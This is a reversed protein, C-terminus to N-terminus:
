PQIRVKSMMARTDPYKKAIAGIDVHLTSEPAPSSSAILTPSSRGPPGRVQAPFQLRPSRINKEDLITADEFTEEHKPENLGPDGVVVQSVAVVKPPPLYTIVRRKTGAEEVKGNGSGRGPIKIPLRFKGSERTEKKRSPLTSWEADPDSANFAYADKRLTKTPQTSRTRAPSINTSAPPPAYRTRKLPRNNIHPLTRERVPSTHM